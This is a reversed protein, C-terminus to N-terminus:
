SLTQACHIKKVSKLTTNFNKQRWVPKTRRAIWHKYKTPITSNQQRQRHHAHHHHGHPLLRHMLQHRPLRGLFSDPLPGKM